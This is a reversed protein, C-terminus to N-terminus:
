ERWQKSLLDARKVYTAVTRRSWPSIEELDDLTLNRQDKSYLFMLIDKTLVELPHPPQMRNEKWARQITRQSVGLIRAIESSKWELAVSVQYLRKRSLDV